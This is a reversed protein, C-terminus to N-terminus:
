KIFYNGVQLRPQFPTMEVKISTAIVKGSKEPNNNEEISKIDPTDPKETTSYSGMTIGKIGEVIAKELEEPTLM